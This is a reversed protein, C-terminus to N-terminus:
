NKEKNCNTKQTYKYQPKYCICNLEFPSFSFLFFFFLVLGRQAVSSSGMFNEERIEHFNLCPILSPSPSTHSAWPCGPGAGTGREKGALHQLIRVSFKLPDLDKHSLCSIVSPSGTKYFMTVGHAVLCM